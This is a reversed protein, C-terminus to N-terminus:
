PLSHTPSVPQIPFASVNVSWSVSGIRSSCISGPILFRSGIYVSSHRGGNSRIDSRNRISATATTSSYTAQCLDRQSLTSVWGSRHFRFADLNYNFTSCYLSVAEKFVQIEQSSTVRLWSPSSSHLQLLTLRQFACTGWNLPWPLWRESGLICHAYKVGSSHSSPRM